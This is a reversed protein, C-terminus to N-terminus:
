YKQFLEIIAKNFAPIDQPCRSTILKEDVVVESDEWSAGANVLDAKISKWSTMKKGKAIEADILIWPGHCIAAMPKDAAQMGKVFGVAQANIRLNDPNMVGGPLVLADYNDVQADALQVDVPFSKGWQKNDWGTVKDEEPSIIEVTAGAEELALKPQELESQEFGNTVLIAIKKGNLKNM